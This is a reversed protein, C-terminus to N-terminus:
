KISVEAVDVMLYRRIGGDKAIVTLVGKDVSFKLVESLSRELRDGNKFAVVLRINALPDAKANEPESGKAIAKGRDKPKKDNAIPKKDEKVEKAAINESNTQKKTTEKPKSEKSPSISDVGPKDSVTKVDVTKVADKKQKVAVSAAQPTKIETKKPQPVEIITGVSNVRVKGLESAAVTPADPDSGPRGQLAVFSGAFKLQLTAPRDDPPRGEIRLILRETKRLYILRGTENFSSDSYIVIKTLPRMGDATFVDINGDFNKSVVNIFVDGQDGGFAYYYTTLRSDGIDRPNITSNVVNTTLPTPFNPDSSQGVVSVVCIFVVALLAPILYQSKRQSRM